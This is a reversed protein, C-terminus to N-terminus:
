LFIIRPQHGYIGPSEILTGIEKATDCKITGSTPRTLGAIMKLLTTKGAGNKGILGFISPSTIHLSVDNVATCGKYKKVLHNLTIEM